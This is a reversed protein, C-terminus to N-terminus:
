GGATPELTLVVKPSALTSAATAERAQSRKPPTSNFRNPLDLKPKVLGSRSPDSATEKTHATNKSSVLRQVTSSANEASSEVLLVLWCSQRV